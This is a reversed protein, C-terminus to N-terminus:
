CDPIEDQFRLADIQRRVVAFDNRCLNQSVIMISNEPHDASDLGHANRRDAHAVGGTGLTAKGCKGDNIAPHSVSYRHVNNNPPIKKLSNPIYRPPRM